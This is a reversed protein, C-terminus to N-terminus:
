LRHQSKDLARKTLHCEAGGILITLPRDLAICISTLVGISVNADGNELASLTNRHIGAEKAVQEQSLGARRRFIYIVEGINQM